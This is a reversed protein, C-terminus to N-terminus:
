LVQSMSRKFSNMIFTLFFSRGGHSATHPPVRGGRPGRAGHRDVHQVAAPPEARAAGAQGRDAQFCVPNVVHISIRM